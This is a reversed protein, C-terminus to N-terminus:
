FICPFNSKSGESNEFPRIECVFCRIKYGSTGFNEDQGPSEGVREHFHRWGVREGEKPRKRSLFWEKPTNWPECNKVFHDSYAGRSWKGHLFFFIQLEPLFSRPVACKTFEKMKARESDITVHANIGINISKSCQHWYIDLEWSWVLGSWVLGSWVM